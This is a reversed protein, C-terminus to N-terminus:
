KMQVVFNSWIHHINDDKMTIIPSRLEEIYRFICIEVSKFMSKYWVKESNKEKVIFIACCLCCVIMYM